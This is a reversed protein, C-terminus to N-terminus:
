THYVCVHRVCCVGAENLLAKSTLSESFFSDLVLYADHKRASRVCPEKSRVTGQKASFVLHTVKRTVQVYM